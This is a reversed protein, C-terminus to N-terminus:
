VLAARTIIETRPDANSLMPIKYSLVKTKTLQFGHTKLGAFTFNRPDLNLPDQERKDSLLRVCQTCQTVTCQLVNHNWIM